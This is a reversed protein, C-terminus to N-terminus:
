QEEDTFLEMSQVFKPWRRDTVMTTLTALAENIKPSAVPCEATPVLRRSGMARFGVKGDEFHFQVRNRYGWPEEAEIRIQTEEYEIRGVRRLTEALIGRKLKVQTGYSIHQYQCGGCNTFVPCEPEVRKASASLVETLRARAAGKRTPIRDASVKEGPLVFPTFIVEGDVRALGEGGYVLKEITLDM